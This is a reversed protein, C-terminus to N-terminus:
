RSKSHGAVTIACGLTAKEGEADIAWKAVLVKVGDPKEGITPAATKGAVQPFLLMVGPHDGGTTGASLKYLKKAEIPDPDTDKDAPTLLAFEPHPATGMHDGTEPQFAIRLTYVGAAIEQKRYDVFPKAFKVAAVLTGDPIERYTLGNKIQDATAKAPVVARFWIVLRAEGGADAVTVASRGLIGRVGEALADPPATETVSVQLSPGDAARSNAVLFIISLCVVYKRM